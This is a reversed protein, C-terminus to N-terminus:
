SQAVGGPVAEAKLRAGAEAIAMVAQAGDRRRLAVTGAEAERAGVALVIPIGAERADVIKRGLREPRVDLAMRLGQAALADAVERAYDAREEGISAVVAQDPALWLPLQGDYHELLLAIFRELSGLVAHHLMVPRAFAGDSAVYRAGLREPLVFDLQITGCQWARGVRDKLYFSLKPGYFAGGGPEAAYALGAAHAAAGLAAEAQDWLADDGARQAPRTALTVAVDAFGLEAYIRRLLLSFRRVETEVHEPACLIHADDQVFARTRALGQLAGSAENRHCAGFECYRLPLERFSRVRQKFVQVHCPCSVPKLAHARDGDRVVFMEGRFNEWHGSAEWLARDILQPTRIERFGAGAMRARIYDEIVRYLAFGRPHWFVMGPAEDQQHFLDLRNGLARHDHDDM